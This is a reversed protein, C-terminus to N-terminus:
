KYVKFEGETPLYEEEKTVGPPILLFKFSGEIYETTISKITLHAEEDNTKIKYVKGEGYEYETYKVLVLDNYQFIIPEVAEIPLPYQSITFHLTSYLEPNKYIDYKKTVIQIVRIDTDTIMTDFGQKEDSEYKEIGIQAKLFGRFLNPQAGPFNTNHKECSSLALVSVLAISLIFIISRM